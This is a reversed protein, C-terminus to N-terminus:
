PSPPYLFSVRQGMITGKIFIQTGDSSLLIKANSGMGSLTNPVGGAGHANMEFADQKYAGSLLLGLSQSPTSIEATGVVRNLASFQM